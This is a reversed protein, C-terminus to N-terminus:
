RTLRFKSGTEPGFYEITYDSQIKDQIKELDSARLERDTAMLILQDAMSPLYTMVKEGHALDLRGFPTDMMIPGVIYSCKNLAGILALAVIQEEGASRWENRNLIRGDTTVISLGYNENIMLKSFSEKSRLIKFIDTATKEIVNRQEETYKLITTNFLEISSDLLSIRKELIKMEDDDVSKMKQDLVSKVEMWESM